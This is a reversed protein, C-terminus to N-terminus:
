DATVCVLLAARGPDAFGFGHRGGGLPFFGATALAAVFGADDAAAPGAVDARLEIVDRARGGESTPGLHEVTLVRDGLAYQIRAVLRAAQAPWAPDPDVLADDTRSAIRNLLNANFPVFREEWLRRVEQETAERSGGNDVWVDAAARREADSAQVTMRALTDAEPMGRQHVLRELRTQADAGVVVTLHEAPWLRKEVLLPMDHVVIAAAPAAARLEALRAAIAPGTIAELRALQAPDPFVIRALGARDLSGDERFVGPGFADAIAARAASGPDVVERAVLDADVVLAGLNRLVNAVTSKGSGIGGTLGIRLM